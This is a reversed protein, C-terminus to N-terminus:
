APIEPSGAWLTTLFWHFKWARGNPNSAIAWDLQTHDIGPRWFWLARNHHDMTSATIGVLPFVLNSGKGVTVAHDGGIQAAMALAIYGATGIRQFLKQPIERLHQFLQM